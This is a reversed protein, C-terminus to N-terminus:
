NHSGFVKEWPSNSDSRYSCRECHFTLEDRFFGPKLVPQMNMLHRFATMYSTDQPYHVILRFNYVVQGCAMIQKTRAKNRFRIPKAAM